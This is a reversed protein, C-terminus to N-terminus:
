LPEKSPEGTPIPDPTPHITRPDPHTEDGHGRWYARLKNRLTRLSIGLMRAAHTRNGKCHRLTALVLAKEIEAVSYGVCRRTLAAALEPAPADTGAALYSLVADLLREHSTTILIGSGAPADDSFVYAGSEGDIRVLGEPAIRLHPIDGGHYTFPLTDGPYALDQFVLTLEMHLDRLREAALSVNPVPAVSRRGFVPKIGEARRGSSFLKERGANATNEQRPGYSGYTASQATM